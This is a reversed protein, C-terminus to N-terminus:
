YIKGIGIRGVHSETSLPCISFTSHLWWSNRRESKAFDCQHRIRRHTTLRLVRILSHSLFLNFHSTFNASRFYESFSRESHLAYWGRNEGLRLSGKDKEQFM